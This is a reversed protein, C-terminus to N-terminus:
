SSKRKHQKNNKKTQEFREECTYVSRINIYNFPKNCINIVSTILFLNIM